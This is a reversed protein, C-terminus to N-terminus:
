LTKMWKFINSLHADFDDGLDYCNGSKPVIIDNIRKITQQIALTPTYTHDLGAYRIGSMSFKDGDCNQKIWDHENIRICRLINYLVTPITDPSIGYEISGWNMSGNKRLLPKNKIVNIKNIFCEDWTRFISLLNEIPETKLKKGSLSWLYPDLNSWTLTNIINILQRHVYSGTCDPDIGPNKIYEAITNIILSCRAHFRILLNKRNATDEWSVWLENTYISRTGDEIVSNTIDVMTSVESCFQELLPKMQVPQNNSINPVDNGEYSLINHIIDLDVGHQKENHQIDADTNDDIPTDEVPLPVTLKLTRIKALLEDDIKFYEQIMKSIIQVDALEEAIHLWTDKNSVNPRGAHKSIASILEGLEETFILVPTCHEKDYTLWKKIHYLEEKPFLVKIDDNLKKDLDKM